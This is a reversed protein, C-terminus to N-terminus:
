NEELIAATCAVAEEIREDKRGRRDAGAADATVREAVTKELCSESGTRGEIDNAMGDAIWRLTGANSPSRHSDTSLATGFFFVDCIFFLDRNM